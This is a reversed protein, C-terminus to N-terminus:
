CIVFFRQSRKPNRDCSSSTHKSQSSKNVRMCRQVRRVFTKTRYGSFDHGIRNRIIAYIESLAEDFSNAQDPSAGTAFTNELLDASKAFDALKEGMEEVPVAVDILGASIAADPMDPHQPGYGDKPSPLQSLAQHDDILRASLGLRRM